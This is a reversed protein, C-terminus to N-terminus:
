TPQKSLISDVSCIALRELIIRVNYQWLRVSLQQHVNSIAKSVTRGTTLITRAIRKLTELSNASWVGFTEVALPFFMCSTTEVAEQHKEDKESEGALAAAGAEQASISIYSSQLSNQTTIEFYM